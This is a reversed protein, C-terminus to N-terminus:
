FSRSPSAVVSCALGLPQARDCTPYYWQFCCGLWVKVIQFLAHRGYFSRVSPANSFDLAPSGDSRSRSSPLGKGM